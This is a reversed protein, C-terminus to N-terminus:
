VEWKVSKAIEVLKELNDLSENSYNSYISLVFVTDDMVWYLSEGTKNDTWVEQWGIPDRLDIGAYYALSNNLYVEVIELNDRGLGSYHGAFVNVAESCIMGSENVYISNRTKTQELQIISFETDINLTYTLFVSETREFSTNGYYIINHLEANETLYSTLAIPYIMEELSKESGFVGFLQGEESNYDEDHNGIAETVFMEKRGPNITIQEDDSIIDSDINQQACSTATLLLIISILIVIILSYYKHNRM